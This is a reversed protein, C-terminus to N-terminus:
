QELFSPISCQRLFFSSLIKFFECFLPIHECFLFEKYFPRNPVTEQIKMTAVTTLLVLRIGPPPLPNFFVAIWNSYSVKGKLSIWM